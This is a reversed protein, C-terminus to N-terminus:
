NGRGRLLAVSICAEPRCALVNWTYEERGRLLRAIRMPWIWEFVYLGVSRPDRHDCPTISCSPPLLLACFPLVLYSELSYRYIGSSIAKASFVPLLDGVVKLAATDARLLEPLLTVSQSLRQSRWLGRRAVVVLPSVEGGLLCRGGAHRARCRFVTSSPLASSYSSSHTRHRLGSVSWSSALGSFCLIDLSATGALMPAHLMPSRSSSRACFHASLSTLFHNASCVPWLNRCSHLTHPMAQRDAKSAHLWCSRSSVLM